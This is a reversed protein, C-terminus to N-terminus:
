LETDTPRPADDKKVKIHRKLTGKKMHSLAVDKAHVIKDHLYQSAGASGNATMLLEFRKNIEAESAESLHLVKAAESPPMSAKKTMMIADDRGPNEKRMQGFQKRLLEEGFIRPNSDASKGM